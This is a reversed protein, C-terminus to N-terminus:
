FRIINKCLIVAQSAVTFETVVCGTHIRAILNKFVPKQIGNFCINFNFNPTKGGSNTKLIEAFNLVEIFGNLVEFIKCFLGASCYLGNVVHIIKVIVIITIIDNIEPDTLSEFLLM